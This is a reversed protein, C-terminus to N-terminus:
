IAENAISLAKTVAEDPVALLSETSNNLAKKTKDALRILSEAESRHNMIRGGTARGIRGGTAARKDGEFNAMAKSLADLVNPDSMDLRDHIGVGLRKAVELKYNNTGEPTNGKGESPSWKEIIADITDRGESGYSSLLTKHASYGNEPKDFVAFQGDTGVYGPQRKAFDSDIINGPNNNRVNRPLSNDGQPMGMNEESPQQGEEQLAREGYYAGATVPRSTAASGVKAIKGLATQSMSSLRPSAGALAVAAGAPHAVAFYGVGGLVADMLGINGKHMPKTAYGALLYPIRENHAALADIVNKKKLDSKMAKMIKAMTNAVGSNPQGAVSKLDKAQSIWGQWQDMANAYKSDGAAIADRVAAKVRDTAGRAPDHFEFNYRENGLDRKFKDAFILNHNAHSDYDLVRRRMDQIQKYANQNVAEIQGASNRLADEEKRLVDLVKSYDPKIKDLGAINSAYNASAKDAVGSITDAFEDVIQGETFTRGDKFAGRQVSNGNKSMNYIDTLASYPVGSTTAQTLRLARAPLSGVGRAIALSSQIPDTVTAAIKAAQGFKGPLGAAGVGTLTSFDLLISAPDKKFARMFDQSSTFYTKKYHDWLANVVREEQKKKTPDQQM